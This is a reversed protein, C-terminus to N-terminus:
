AHAMKRPLQDGDDRPPSVAMPDPVQETPLQPTGGDEGSNGECWGGVDQQVELPCSTQAVAMQVAQIMHPKQLISRVPSRLELPNMKRSHRHDPSTSNM